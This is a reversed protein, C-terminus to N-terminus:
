NGRSNDTFPEPDVAFPDAEEAAAASIPPARTPIGLCQLIARIAQPPHIAAVIRMPTQHCKPCELVDVEFVRHMLEAWAYRRERFPDAPGLTNSELAIGPTAEESEPTSDPTESECDTARSESGLVVAERWRSQPALVGHYRVLNFRPAPVLAALKEVLEPGEFVVHTAGNRWRHKLKYSV